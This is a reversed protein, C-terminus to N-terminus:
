AAWRYKRRKRNRERIAVLARVVDPAVDYDEAVHEISDGAAVNEVIADALRHRKDPGGCIGCEGAFPQLVDLVSYPETRM